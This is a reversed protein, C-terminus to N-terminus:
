NVMRCEKIGVFLTTEMAQSKASQSPEHRNGSKVRSLPGDRKGFVETYSYPTLDRIVLLLVTNVHNHLNQLERPATGRPTAQLIPAFPMHLEPAENYDGDGHPSVSCLKEVYM